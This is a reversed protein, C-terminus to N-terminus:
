QSQQRGGPEQIRRSRRGNGLDRPQRERQNDIVEIRMGGADFRRGRAADRDWADLEPLGLTDGYFCVVDDFRNTLLALYSM